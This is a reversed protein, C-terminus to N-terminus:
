ASPRLPFMVRLYPGAPKWALGAAALGTELAARHDTRREPVLRGVYTTAVPNIELAEVEGIRWPGTTFTEIYGSAPESVWASWEAPASPHLLLLRVQCGHLAVLDHIAAITMLAREPTTPASFTHRLEPAQENLLDSPLRAM